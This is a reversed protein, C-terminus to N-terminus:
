VGRGGFALAPIRNLTVSDYQAPRADPTVKEDCCWTCMRVAFVRRATILVDNYFRGDILFFFTNFFYVGDRTYAACALFVGNSLTVTFIRRM